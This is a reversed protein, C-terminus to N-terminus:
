SGGHELIEAHGYGSRPSFSKRKKRAIVAWFVALLASAVGKGKRRQKRSSSSQGLNNAAKGRYKGVNIANLTAVASNSNQWQHVKSCNRFLHEGTEAAKNVSFALVMQRGALHFSDIRQGYYDTKTFFGPLSAADM